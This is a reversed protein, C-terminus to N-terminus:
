EGKKYFYISTGIYSDETIAVIKIDQKNVWDCLRNSEPKSFNTRNRFRKIHLKM